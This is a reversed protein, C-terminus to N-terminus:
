SSIPFFLGYLPPLSNGRESNSNNKVMYGVIHLRLYFTNFEDNFVNTKKRRERERETGVKIGKSAVATVSIHSFVCVCVCVCVCVSVCACACACACERVCARVCM